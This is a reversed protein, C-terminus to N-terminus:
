SLKQIEEKLIIKLAECPDSCLHRKYAECIMDRNSDDTIDSLMNVVTFGIHYDEDSLYELINQIISTNNEIKYMVCMQAIRHRKSHSQRMCRSKLAAIDTDAAFEFLRCVASYMYPIVIDNKETDLNDMLVSWAKETHIDGIDEYAECRVLYSEDNIADFIIERIDANDVFECIKEITDCRILEDDNKLLCKIKNAAEDDVNDLQMVSNYIEDLDM